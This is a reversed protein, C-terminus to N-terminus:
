DDDDEWQEWVNEISQCARARAVPTLKALCSEPVSWGCADMEDWWNEWLFEFYYTDFFAVRLSLCDVCTKYRMWRDSEDCFGRFDEYREGPQIERGCETCKHPKRATRNKEESVKWAGGIDDVTITCSCEMAPGKKFFAPGPLPINGPVPQNINIGV